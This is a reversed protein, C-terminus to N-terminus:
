SPRPPIAPSRVEGNTLQENFDGEDYYPRRVVDSLLQMARPVHHRLVTANVALHERASICGVQAGIENFAETIDNGSMTRTGRLMLLDSLLTSGATEPTEFRAGGPLFVGVTSTLGFRDETVVKVGPALVATQTVDEPAARLADAPPVVPDSMSKAWAPAPANSITSSLLRSAAAAGSHALRGGARLM